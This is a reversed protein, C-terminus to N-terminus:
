ASASGPAHLVTLRREPLACRGELEAREVYGEIADPLGVKHRLLWPAPDAAGAPDTGEAPDAGTAQEHATCQTNDDDGTM